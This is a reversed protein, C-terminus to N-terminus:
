TPEGRVSSRVRKALRGRKRTEGDRARRIWNRATERPVPDGPDGFHEQVAKVHRPVGAAVVELVENLDIFRGRYTLGTEMRPRGVPRPALESFSVKKRWEESSAGQTSERRLEDRPAAAAAVAMGTWRKLPIRGFDDPSVFSYRDTQVEVRKVIVEDAIQPPEQGAVEFVEELAATAQLHLVVHLRSSVIGAEFERPIFEARGHLRVPVRADEPKWRVTVYLNRNSIDDALHM